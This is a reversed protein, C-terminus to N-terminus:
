CVAFLENLVITGGQKRVKEYLAVDRLRFDASLDIIKVKPASSTLAAIIEQTTGHPLCCFAVDCDEISARSSEWTTLPPLSASLSQFQPYIQNYEKGASKETGTLVNVSAHPHLSLLRMLEAGTYGSAGLIAVQWIFLADYDSYM